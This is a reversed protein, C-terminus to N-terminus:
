FEGDRVADKFKGWEDATFTLIPSDDGLKSDRVQAGGANDLRVEVCTNGDSSRSPTRWKGYRDSM